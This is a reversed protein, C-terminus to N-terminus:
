LKRHDKWGSSSLRRNGEGGPCCRRRQKSSRRDAKGNGSSYLDDVAKKFQESSVEELPLLLSIDPKTKWCRMSWPRIRWWAGSWMWRWMNMRPSVTVTLHVKTGEEGRIHDSGLSLDVPRRSIKWKTSSIEPFCEPKRHLPIM